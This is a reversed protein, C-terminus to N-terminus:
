LGLDVRVSRALDDLRDVSSAAVGGAELLALADPEAASHVVTLRGADPAALHEMVFRLRGAEAVGNRDAFAHLYHSGGAQPSYGFDFRFRLNPGYLAERGRRILGGDALLGHAEFTEGMRRRIAERSGPVAASPRQLPPPTALYSQVLRDLEVPAEQGWFAEAPGEEFLPYRSEGLRELHAAFREGLLRSEEFEDRVRELLVIDAAPNCALRDFDPAFRADVLGGREDELVVAINYFEGSHTPRYRLLRFRYRRPAAARDPEQSM